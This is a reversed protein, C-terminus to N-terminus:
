LQPTQLERPSEESVSQSHCSWSDPGLPVTIASPFMLWRQHNKKREKNNHYLKCTPFHFYRLSVLWHTNAFIYVLATMGYILACFIELVGLLERTSRKLWDGWGGWLCSDNQNRDTFSWKTEQIEYFHFWVTYINPNKWEVYLSKLNEWTKHTNTHTHTYESIPSKIASYIRNDTGKIDPYWFSEHSIDVQTEHTM